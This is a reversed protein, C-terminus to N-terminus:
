LEKTYYGSVKPRIDNLLIKMDPSLPNGDDALATVMFEIGDLGTIEGTIFLSIAANKANAPVNGGEIIVNNIKNGNKDIPYGTFKAAVPLESTLKLDVQLKEIVLDEIDDSYWGSITRHYEIATGDLFQLPTIFKFNGTMAPFQQGLKFDTVQQDPMNPNKLNISLREPIGDGSLVDSLGTFPVHIADTFDPDPNSPEAPSMCFNYSGDTHIPRGITFYDNDLSFTKQAEGISHYATINIGTQAYIDYSQLPNTLHLYICPNALRINTGADALISPLGDLNVDSLTAKKLSYKMKGTFDTLTAEDLKYSTTIQIQQPLTADSTIDELNVSIKGSRIYMAGSVHLKHEEPDFVGDAMKFNVGKAKFKINLSTGNVSQDAIQLIGTQPDYSEGSTSVFDLGKPFQMEVNQFQLQKVMGGLGTIDINIAFVMDCGFYDIATISESITNTTYELTSHKTELDYTFVTSGLETDPNALTKVSSEPTLSIIDVTPNIPPVTLTAREILIPDSTFTGTQEIVYKGDIIKIKDQEDLNIINDLTIEDINIPIVLDTVQLRATTDIDDLDYNDDVCATLSTLTLTTIFLSRLLSKHM